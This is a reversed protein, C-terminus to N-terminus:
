KIKNACYVPEEPSLPYIKCAQQTPQTERGKHPLTFCTGRIQGQLFVRCVREVSRPSIPSYKCMYVTYLVSSRLLWKFTEYHSLSYNTFLFLLHCLLLMINYRNNGTIICLGIISEVTKAVKYFNRHVGQREKTFIFRFLERSEQYIQFM